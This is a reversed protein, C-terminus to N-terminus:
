DGGSPQSMARSSQSGWFGRNTSEPTPKLCSSQISSARDLFQHDRHLIALCTHFTRLRVLVPGLILPFIDKPTIFSFAHQKNRIPYLPNTTGLASTEVGLVLNWCYLMPTSIDHYPSADRAKAHTGQPPIM